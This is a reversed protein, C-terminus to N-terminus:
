GGPPTGPPVPPTGPPVQPPAPPEPSAAPPVQPAPTSPQWSPSSQGLLSATKSTILTSQYADQSSKWAAKTANTGPGDSPQFTGDKSLKSIWVDAARTIVTFPLDPHFAESATQVNLVDMEADGPANPMNQVDYFTAVAGNSQSVYGSIEVPVSPAFGSVRVNLTLTGNAQLEIGFVWSLPM